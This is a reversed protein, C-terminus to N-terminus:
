YGLTNSHILSQASAAGQSGSSCVDRGGRSKCLLEKLVSQKKGSRVMVSFLRPSNGKYAGFWTEIDAIELDITNMYGAIEKAFIEVDKKSKSDQLYM